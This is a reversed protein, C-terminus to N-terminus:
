KKEPPKPLSGPRNLLFEHLLDHVPIIRVNPFSTEYNLNPSNYDEPYKYGTVEKFLARLDGDQLDQPDVIRGDKLKVEGEILFVM